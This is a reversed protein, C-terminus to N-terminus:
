SVVDEAHHSPTGVLAQVAASAVTTASTVFARVECQRPSRIATEKEDEVREIGGDTEKKGTLSRM